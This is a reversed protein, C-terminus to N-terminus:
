AMSPRTAAPEAEAAPEATVQVVPEDHRAYPEQTGCAVTVLAALLLALLACLKSHRKM